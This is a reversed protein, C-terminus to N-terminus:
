LTLAWSCVPPPPLMARSAAREILLAPSRSLVPLFVVGHSCAGDFGVSEVVMKVKEFGHPVKEENSAGGNRPQLNLMNGLLDYVFERPNGPQQVVLETSLEEFMQKVNNRRLYEMAADKPISAGRAAMTEETRRRGNRRACTVARFNQPFLAWLTEAPREGEKRFLHPVIRADLDAGLGLGRAAARESVDM